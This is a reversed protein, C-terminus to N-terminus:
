FRTPPVNLKSHTELAGVSEKRALGIRAQLGVQAEKEIGM